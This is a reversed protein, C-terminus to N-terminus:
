ARAADARRAAKPQRASLAQVAPARRTQQKPKLVMSARQKCHANDRGLTSYTMVNREGTM